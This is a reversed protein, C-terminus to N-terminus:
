AASVIHSINLPSFSNTAQSAVNKKRAMVQHSKKKAISVKKKNKQGKERLESPDQVIRSSDGNEKTGFHYIPGINMEAAEKARQFLEEYLVRTKSNTTSNTM